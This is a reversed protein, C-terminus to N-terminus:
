CSVLDEINVFENIIHSVSVVNDLLGTTSEIIYDFLKSLSSGIVNDKVLSILDDLKFIINDECLALINDNADEDKKCEKSMSLNGQNDKSVKINVTERFGKEFSTLNLSYINEM